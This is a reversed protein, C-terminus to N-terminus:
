PVDEVRPRISWIAYPLVHPDLHIHQIKGHWQFRHEYIMDEVDLTADDPLGWEWLPVEIHASEGHHPNLNIAVLVIEDREPASKGYYIINDNFANYFTLGLHSQLAPHSARIRNLRSIEPIIAGSMNWDRVKIEYKESDRYEERGPLPDSELLEFGSYMGWLGSLTAALAARILFGPRGSTQLFYPNIDPTNVFLHPRFYERVETTTLETFYDTLERKDNRWTFYTYSQSFGIKALHYMRHPRTFAEALFIVDPYVSRIDAILWEWFPLPKTHPNDVRFTRVGQAIWGAIVDRLALWLGPVAEKAYFDVNVIDEYKKPPNEAYKLSGDPRWAFWGPHEKLWPHDPSCQVAFDLAIELGQQAAADRLAIFDEMTGLDPHIADHGGSSDGIAYPSGPDDPGATLSNNRGKRNSKGIPHIPTLYLVDFGMAHIAPLRAIVNRLRGPTAADATQSRPFLEYWSAFGAARREAEVRRPESHVLFPRDDALAMAECVATELMLAAQEELSFDSLRQLLPELAASLEPTSRKAAADLLARGEAIDSATAAGAKLKKELGHAFSKYRDLWASIVFEYPGINSLVFSAGWRDNGLEVMPVHHWVKENLARWRLEGSLLEHGDCIIDARAELRDGVIRKAAFPAQLDPSIAEIALRPRQAAPKATRKALRRSLAIPRTSPVEWIRVEGAQLIGGDLGAATLERLERPNFGPMFQDPHLPYDREGHSNVLILWSQKATREDPGGARLLASVPAAPSTLVRMAGPLRLMKENALLGNASRIAEFLGAVETTSARLYDDGNSGAPEMPERMAFEFGMPIMVGCGTAAALHLQAQAIEAHNRMANGALRPAYPAEPAAIPPAVARLAEYEEVFWSARKDWWPLSSLVYDFGCGSLGSAQRRSAGYTSAIFLPGPQATRAAGILQRWIDAPLACADICRFGHIGAEVWEQIRSTWWAVLFDRCHDNEYDAYVSGSRLIPKRPDVIRSGRSRKLPFCAEQTAVLQHNAGFQSISIDLLLQLDRQLCQTALWSLFMPASLDSKLAPDLQDHSAPFFVHEDTGPQFPQSLLVHSFGLVRCRDLVAEIQAPSSVYRHFLYYIRPPACESVQM